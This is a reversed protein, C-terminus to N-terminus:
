RGFVGVDDCDGDGDDVDDDYITVRQQHIPLRACLRRAIPLSQPRTLTNPLPLIHCHIVMVMMLTAMVFPIVFKKKLSSAYVPAVASTSKATVASTHTQHPSVSHPLPDPPLHCSFREHQFVYLCLPCQNPNTMMTATFPKADDSDHDDDDFYATMMTVALVMMMRMMMSPWVCIAYLCDSALSSRAARVRSRSSVCMSAVPSSPLCNLGHNRGRGNSVM